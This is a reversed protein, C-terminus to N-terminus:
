LDFLDILVTLIPLYFLCIYIFFFVSYPKTLYSKQNMIINKKHFETNFRSLEFLM